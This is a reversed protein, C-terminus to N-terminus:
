LMCTLLMMYKNNSGYKVNYAIAEIVDVVDDFCNVAGGPVQLTPYQIQMDKVAVDAIWNKNALLLDHAEAYRDAVPNIGNNIITKFTVSSHALQM